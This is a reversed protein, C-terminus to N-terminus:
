EFCIISLVVKLHYSVSNIKESLVLYRSKVRYLCNGKMGLTKSCTLFIRLVFVFPLRQTERERGLDNVAEIYRLYKHKRIYFTVSKTTGSTVPIISDIYGEM